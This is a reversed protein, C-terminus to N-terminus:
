NNMLRLIQETVVEPYDEQLFHSGRCEIIQPLDLAARLPIGYKEITLGLDNIGWIIQKNVELSRLMDIYFDEKEQTAEFSRMIKLFAQGSDKEKLLNVYTAAEESGFLQNKHIGRLHMLKKFLFPTTTALFLEGIIKREFFFMPFPKKFSALGTIPTNLITVSLIQEPKRAMMECGIPGGIDHLVLHFKDLALAEIVKESWAGLSTWSYDYDIPKDSLGMGLLDFAVGRCGNQALLDIVKRYLFSSAPVGHMCVVAEGQGQDTVFARTDGVQIYEGKEQHSRLLNSAMQEFKSCWLQCM